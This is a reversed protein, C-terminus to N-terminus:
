TAISMFVENPSRPDNKIKEMLQDIKDQDM